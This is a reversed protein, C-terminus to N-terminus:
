PLCQKPRHSPIAFDCNALYLSAGPTSPYQCPNISSPPHISYLPLHCAHISSPFILISPHHQCSPTVFTCPHHTRVASPLANIIPIPPHGPHLPLSSSHAVPTSPHHRHIPHIFALSQHTIPASPCGNGMRRMMWGDGDGMV